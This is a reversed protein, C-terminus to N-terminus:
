QTDFDRFRDFSIEQLEKISNFIQSIFHWLHFIGRNRINRNVFKSWDSKIWFDNGLKLFGLVSIIIGTLFTLLVVFAPGKNAHESTM